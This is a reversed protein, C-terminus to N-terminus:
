KSSNHEKLQELLKELEAQQWRLKVVEQKKKRLRRNLLQNIWKLFM